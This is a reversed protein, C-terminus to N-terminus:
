GCDAPAAPGVDLDKTRHGTQSQAGAIPDTITIAEDYDLTLVFADASPTLTATGTYTGDVASGDDWTTHEEGTLPGTLSGTGDASLTVDYFVNQTLNGAVEFSAVIRWPGLESECSIADYNTVLGSQESTISDQIAWGSFAAPAPAITTTPDSPAPDTSQAAVTTPETDAPADSTPETVPVSVSESPSPSSGTDRTTADDSSGCAGIALAVAM